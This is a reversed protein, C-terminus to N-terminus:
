EKLDRLELGKEKMFQKTEEINKIRASLVGEAIILAEKITSSFDNMKTRDAIFLLRDWEERNLHLMQKKHKQNPKLKRLETYKPM